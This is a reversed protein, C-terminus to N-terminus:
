NIAVKSAFSLPLASISEKKIVRFGKHQQGNTYTKHLHSKHLNNSEAFQSLNRVTVTELTHINQITWLYKCVSHVTNDRSTIWELNSVHNNTKDRDIHNVEPLNDPNPLYTQAVLRHVRHKKKVGNSRITVLVYGKWMTHTKLEILKGSRNSFVRGDECVFIGQETPHEKM